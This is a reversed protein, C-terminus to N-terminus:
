EPRQGRKPRDKRVEQLKLYQEETLIEKLGADHEARLSKRDEKAANAMQLNLQYVATKQDDTLSLHESMHNTMKEAREEPTGREQGSPQAFASFSFSAMLALAFLIKKM